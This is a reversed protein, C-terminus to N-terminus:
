LLNGTNSQNTRQSLTGSRQRTEERCKLTKNESDKNSKM